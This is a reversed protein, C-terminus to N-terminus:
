RVQELFNEELLKDVEDAVLIRLSALVVRVRPRVSPESGAAKDADMAPRLPATSTSATRRLLAVLLLPTTVLVDVSPLSPSVVLIPGTGEAAASATSEGEEEEGEGDDFSEGPM